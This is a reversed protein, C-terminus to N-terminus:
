KINKIYTNYAVVALPAKEVTNELARIIKIDRKYNALEDLVRAKILEIFQANNKTIGGGIIIAEPDFINVINAIGISLNEAAKEVIPKAYDENNKWANFIDKSEIKSKHLKRNLLNNSTFYKAIAKGSALAELCGKRGCGCKPGNKEIVMHGFEGAFGNYGKYLKNNIFIAGGIGTGITLYIFDSYKRGAGYFKEALAQAKADNEIFIQEKFRSKFKNLLNRHEWGTLNPAYMIISKKNIAAPFTVGIYNANYYEHLKNYLYNIQNLLTNNNKNNQTKLYEKFFVRGSIDGVIAILKTAGIEFGFIKKNSAGM